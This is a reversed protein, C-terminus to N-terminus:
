KFCSHMGTPHTGGAATATVSSPPRWVGGGRASGGPASVGRPAPMGGPDSGGPILCGRSCVCGGALDGEVEGKPTPRSWIGRLKGRPHPGPGSGGWSGGQTHAQVLDGVLDGWSGDQTYAQLGGQGSGGLSGGQTHVQVLDGEVEVKPIPRSVGGPWIGRFKGRPHPGPFRCPMSPYGGWVQQLALSDM